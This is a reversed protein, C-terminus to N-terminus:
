KREWSVSQGPGLTVPTSPCSSKGVRLVDVHLTRLSGIASVALTITGQATESLTGLVGPLYVPLTYPAPLRPAFALTGNGRHTFDATQGSMALPVHWSVQAPCQM